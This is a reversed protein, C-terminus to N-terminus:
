TLFISLWKFTINFTCHQNNSFVCHKQLQQQMVNLDVPRTKDIDMSRLDEDDDELYTNSSEPLTATENLAKSIDRKKAESNDRDYIKLSAESKHGTVRMIERSAFGSECLKTVVTARISHNTYVKSLNLRTSIKKMMSLSNKGIVHKTFWPQEEIEVTKKPKTFLYECDKDLKEVYLKYSKIPCTEQGTSYLRSKPTFSIDQHNKTKENFNMELYEKGAGDKAHLFSSKKLQRM